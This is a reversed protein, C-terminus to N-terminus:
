GGSTSMAISNRTFGARPPKGRFSTTPYEFLNTSAQLAALAKRPVSPPREVGSVFREDIYVSAAGALLAYEINNKIKDQFTSTDAESMYWAVGAELEFKAAFTTRKGEDAPITVL